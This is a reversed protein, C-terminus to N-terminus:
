RKAYDQIRIIEARRIKGNDNWYGAMRHCWNHRKGPWVSVVISVAGDGDALLSEKDDNSISTTDDPHSHFDGVIDPEFFDNVREEEEDEVEVWCWGNKDKGRKCKQYTYVANVWIHDRLEGEGILVGFAEAPHIEAAAAKIIRECMAPLVITM